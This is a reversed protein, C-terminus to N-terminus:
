RIIRIVKGCLSVNSTQITLFSLGWEEDEGVPAKIRLHVSDDLTALEYVVEFRPDTSEHDISCIDVLFNLKLDKKCFSLVEFLSDLAVIATFEGRFEVTELVSDGFKRQVKELQASM